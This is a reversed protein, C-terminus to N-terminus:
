VYQIRWQQCARSMNQRLTGVLNSVVNLSGQLNKEVPGSADPCKTVDYRETYFPFYQASVNLEWRCSLTVLHCRVAAVAVGHAELDEELAEVALGLGPPEDDVSVDGGGESVQLYFAATRWATRQMQSVFSTTFSNIIRNAMAM